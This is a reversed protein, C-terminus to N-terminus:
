RDGNPELREEIKEIRRIEDDMILERVTFRLCQYFLVVSLVVVMVLLLWIKLEEKSM